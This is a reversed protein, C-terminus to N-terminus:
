GRVTYKDRHVAPDFVEWRSAPFVHQNKEYWQRQVVKGPHSDEKEVTADDTVRIEEQAGFTFLPGSKGRARSTILEYFTTSHPLILDEKVFVLDASSTSRMEPFDRLLDQRV